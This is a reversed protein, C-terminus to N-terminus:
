PQMKLLPMSLVGRDLEQGRIADLLQMAPGLRAAAKLLAEAARAESSEGEDGGFRAMAAEFVSKERPYPRLHIPDGDQLKMAQRALRLAVPYGGVEDVLGIKRADEGTWIRGKAIQQVKEKPLKRGEAVKGTFDVYVRDLWAQIRNWEDPSFDNVTSFMRAHEGRHVEDFSLGLKDFLGSMLFKGGLVGISGTITAPQAVIKDAAMAVFYGGSGAVSSMSVIVPKGAKKANLTERWIADSAVYSGGPSDVRFLIAKVDRDKIAERFAATVTDSGMTANGGLPDFESKGRMVAGAGVILAVVPGKTHPRGARELYKGLYLLEANAGKEKVKAFVEDRYAIGDVLKAAKAGTGLIPGKDIAAKVEEVSLKRGAAIGAVMQQYMSGVIADTAERHAPTFKKETYVNLANKYEYRHDMRPVMGLKDFTGKLFMSQAMPGTLGIDGSPQLYIEDFATALYYSGNAPGFEGFTESFAVTFKKSTRFSQVADRIEQAQAMSMSAGGMRAILGAVRSDTRAKELGEVIDRLVPTSQGALRALPDTPPAELLATELNLELITRSPVRGKTSRAVTALVFLLFVGCVTLAGIIALVRGLIRRM